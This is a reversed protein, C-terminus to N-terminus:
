QVTVPARNRLASDVREATLRNAIDRLRRLRNNVEHVSTELTDAIDQPMPAAGAILAELVAVLQDDDAVAAFLADIRTDAFEPGALSHHPTPMPSSLVGMYDRLRSQHEVGDLLEAGDESQPFEGRLQNDHLELHHSLISDVSDRLFDALPKKAPDWNRDSAIFKEIAKQAVDVPDVGGGLTTENDVSLGMRRAKWVAYGALLRGLRGWDTDRLAEAIVRDVGRGEM